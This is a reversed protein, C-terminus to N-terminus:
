KRSGSYSALWAVVSPGIAFGVILGTVCAAQAADVPDGAFLWTAAYAVLLTFASGAVALVFLGVLERKTFTM